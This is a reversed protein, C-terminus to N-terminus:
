DSIGQPDGFFKAIRENLEGNMEELQAYRIQVDESKIIAHRKFELYVDELEVNFEMNIRDKVQQDLILKEQSLSYNLEEQSSMNVQESQLQTLILDLIQICEQNLEQQRFFIDRVEQLELTGPRYSDGNKQAEKRRDESHM